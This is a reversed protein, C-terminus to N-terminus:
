GYNTNELDNYYNKRVRVKISYSNAIPFKSCLDPRFVITRQYTLNALLANFCDPAINTSSSVSSNLGIIM